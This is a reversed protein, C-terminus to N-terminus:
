GIYTINYVWFCPKIIITMPNKIVIKHVSLHPFFVNIVELLKKRGNGNNM